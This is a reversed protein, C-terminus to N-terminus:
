LLPAPLPPRSFGEVGVPAWVELEVRQGAGGAALVSVWGPVGSVAVDGLPRPRWDSGTRLSVRKVMRLGGRLQVSEAGFPGDQGPQEQGGTGDGEMQAAAAAAPQTDDAQAGGAAAAVVRLAPPGYFVLQLSPPGQVVDIRVLGGWWYSALPRGGPGGAAGAQQRGAAASGRGGAAAGAATPSAVGPLLDGLSPAAYPRLRRRPHLAKNEDPTLIHPIRHHLHLGPTDYLLGGAAFVQPHTSPSTTPSQPHPPTLLQLASPCCANCFLGHVAILCTDEAPLVMCFVCISPVVQPPPRAPLSRPVRHPTSSKLNVCSASHYWRWRYLWGSSSGVAKRPAHLSPCLM